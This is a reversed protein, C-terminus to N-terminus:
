RNDANSDHADAHDSTPSHLPCDFDDMSEERNKCTCDGHRPCWTAAPGTCSADYDDPEYEYEIGFLDCFSMLVDAVGCGIERDVQAVERVAVKHDSTTVLKLRRAQCEEIERALARREENLAENDSCVLRLFGSARRESDELRNLVVHDMSDLMTTVHDSPITFEVRFSPGHDDTFTACKLEKVQRDLSAILEAAGEVEAEGREAEVVVVDRIQTLAAKLREAGGAGAVVNLTVSEEDRDVVEVSAAVSTRLIVNLTINETTM